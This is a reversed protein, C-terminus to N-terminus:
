LAKATVVYIGDDHSFGVGPASAGVGYLCALAAALLVGIAFKLRNSTWMLVAGPGDDSPFHFSHGSDLIDGVLLAAFHANEDVQFFVPGDPLVEPVPKYGSDRRLSFLM